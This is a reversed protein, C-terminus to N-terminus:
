RTFPCTTSSRELGLTLKALSRACPLGQRVAFRSVQDIARQTSGLFYAFAASLEDQNKLSMDDTQFLNIPFNSATRLLKLLDAFLNM